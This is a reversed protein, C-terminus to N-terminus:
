EEEDDGGDLCAKMHEFKDVTDLLNHNIYMFALKELKAM